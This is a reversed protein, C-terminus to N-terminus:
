GRLTPVKLHGGASVVFQGNVHQTTLPQGDEGYGAVAAFGAELLWDRLEPYTFMRVEFHTQRVSGGRIITRDVVNRGTLPDFQHRDLM